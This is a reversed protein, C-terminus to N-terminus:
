STKGERISLFPFLVRLAFRQDHRFRLYILMCKQRTISRATSKVLSPCGTGRSRVTFILVVMASEVKGDLSVSSIKGSLQPLHQAWILFPLGQVLFVNLDHDVLFPRPLRKRIIPFERVRNPSVFIGSYRELRPMVAEMNHNPSAFVSTGAVHSIRFIRCYTHNVGILSTTLSM